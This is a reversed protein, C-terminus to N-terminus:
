SLSLFTFLLYHIQQIHCQGNSTQNAPTDEFDTQTMNLLLLILVVGAGPSQAKAIRAGCLPRSRLKRQPSDWQYGLDNSRRFPSWPQVSDESGGEHSPPVQASPLPVGRALCPSTHSSFPPVPLRGISHCGSYSQGESRPGLPVRDARSPSPLKAVPYSRPSVQNSSSSRVLEPLSRTYFNSYVKFLNLILFM